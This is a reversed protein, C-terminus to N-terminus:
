RISRIVSACFFFMCLCFIGSLVNPLGGHNFILCYLNATVGLLPLSAAFWLKKM